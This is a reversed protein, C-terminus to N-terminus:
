AGNRGNGEAKEKLLIEYRKLFFKDKERGAIKKSMLLKNLKGVKIPVDKNHFITADAQM